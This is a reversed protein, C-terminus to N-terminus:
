AKADQVPKLYTPDYNCRVTHVDKGLMNAVATWIVRGNRTCRPIIQAAIPDYRSLGTIRPEAPAATPKPGTM